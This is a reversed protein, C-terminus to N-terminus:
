MFGALWVKYFKKRDNNQEAHYRYKSGTSVASVQAMEWSSVIAKQTVEEAPKSASGRLFLTALYFTLKAQKLQQLTPAVTCQNCKLASFSSHLMIRFLPSNGAANTRLKHSTKKKM